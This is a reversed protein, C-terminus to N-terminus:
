VGLSGLSDETYGADKGFSAADHGVARMCSLLVKSTNDRNTSRIHQDTQMRGGANGALILPMENYSHGTGDALESTAMICSNGLVTSDGEPIAALRQLFQSYNGMVFRTAKHITELQPDLKESDPVDRDDHTMVHGGQVAGVQWFVCDSQMTTFTVSAVRTLNCAFALAIMDSMIANKQELNERGASGFDDRGGPRDAPAQCVSEQYDDLRTELRRFEAMHQDIRQRDRAGLQRKLDNSDELLADLASGRIKEVARDRAPDNTHDVGNGFFRDFVSQPSRDISVFNGGGDIVCGHSPTSGSKGRTSIGVDMSKHTYDAGLANALTWSVSPGTPNGYRGSSQDYTGSLISARGVHHATGRRQIDFGTLVNLYDKVPALPELEESLNWQSGRGTNTPIWRDPRMGNGWFWLGFRPKIPDGNAYCNGNANFMIDLPPLALTALAGGAIGRLLTRRTIKQRAM